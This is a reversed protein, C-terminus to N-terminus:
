IAVRIAQTVIAKIPMVLVGHEELVTIMNGSGLYLGFGSEYLVIDGPALYSLLVEHGLSELYEILEERGGGSMWKSAYNESTFGEYERPLNIGLNEFVAWLLGLCDLGGEKCGLSYPRNLYPLVAKTLFRTKM